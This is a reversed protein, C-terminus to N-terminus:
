KSKVHLVKQLYSIQERLDRLLKNYRKRKEIKEQYEQIQKASLKGLYSFKVKKPSERYALYFYDNEKRKKKILSGRPMQILAERYKEQMRLSNELEERLVGRIVDM